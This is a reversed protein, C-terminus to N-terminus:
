PITIITKRMNLCELVRWVGDQPLPRDERGPLILTGYLRALIKCLHKFLRRIHAAYFIPGPLFSHLEGAEEPAVDVIALIEPHGQQAAGESKELAVAAAFQEVADSSIHPQKTIKGTDGTGRQFPDYL